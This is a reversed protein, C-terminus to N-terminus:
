ASRASCLDDRQDVVKLLEERLEVMVDSLARYKRLPLLENRVCPSVM